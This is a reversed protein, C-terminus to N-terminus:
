QKVTSNWFAVLREHRDTYSILICRVLVVFFFRIKKLRTGCEVKVKAQSINGVGMMAVKVPRIFAFLRTRRCHRMIFILTRKGSCFFFSLSLFCRSCNPAFGVNWVKEPGKKFKGTSSLVGQAIISGNKMLAWSPYKWSIIWSGVKGNQPLSM